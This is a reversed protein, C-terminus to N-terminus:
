FEYSVIEPFKKNTIVRIAVPKKLQSSMELFVQTSMPPASAHRQMWWRRAKEHMPQKHEIGIFEQFHRKGCGYVVRMMPPSGEKTHPLYSVHDVTFTEIEPEVGLLVNTNSPTATIKTEFIFEHGCAYCFRASIFNYAKCEPKECMKVPVDGTKKGGSPSPINPYDIPGNRINGAFDLYLFNQKGTEPSPRLGRGVKQVYYGVSETPQLDIVLDIAPCNFGTSLIRNGIIMNVVGDMYMEIRKKREVKPVQSHVFVSKVGMEHLIDHISHVHETGAAFIMGKNRGWGREMGEILAARTIEEKNVAASLQNPTYDGNTRGVGEVSLRTDTGSTIPQALYGEQILRQYDEPATLDYSVRDFLGGPATLPGQKTRWGTATLGIVQLDPYLERLSVLTKQYMTEDNPSLLHAEDLLVIHRAGFVKPSRAVSGISGFIVPHVTDKKHLGACFVGCPVYPNFKRMALYNQEVLEQVHTLILFQTKPWHKLITVVLDMIVISKGTGTIMQILPNCGKHDVLCQLTSDLAEQQYWRRNFQPVTM